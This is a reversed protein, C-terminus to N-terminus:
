WFKTNLPLHLLMHSTFVLIHLIDSDKVRSSNWQFHAKWKLGVIHTSRM